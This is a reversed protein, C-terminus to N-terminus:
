GFDEDVCNTHRGSDIRLRPLRVDMPFFAPALDGNRIRPDFNRDVDPQRHHETIRRTSVEFAHGPVGARPATGREIGIQETSHRTRGAVGRAQDFLHLM